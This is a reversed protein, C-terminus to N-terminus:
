EVPEHVLPAKANLEQVYNEGFIVQGARFAASVDGAPRTKSVAVLRVEGAPRGARAAAADIRDHVQQLRHAITM